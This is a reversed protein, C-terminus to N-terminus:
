LSWGKGLLKAARRAFYTLVMDAGARRIAVLSEMMVREEDLWGNRAAALIMSYEGSVQYAATPVGFRDKVRRIIDLYPMAPKVMIMDAGEELDLAVERLAEDGNGPDMQHSRRDGFAPASEAADRFPGYFGSSYKAAYSLIPLEPSGAADLAERIGSVMGDVMGSPAIVDAGARALSVAQKGLNERTADNDLDGDSLVGCHGHDTYECFCLDVMAVLEPAARKLADLGRQVVGDPRWSSAGVPDKEEPIGFLILAPVGEDRIRPAVEALRDASWQSVGPMSGVPKEVGSGPCIFVPYILSDATLRTERVLRRVGAHKRNRRMRLTPYNTM